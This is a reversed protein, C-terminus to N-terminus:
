SSPVTEPENKQTNIPKLQLRQYDDQQMLFSFPLGDFCAPVNGEKDPKGFRLTAQTGNKAQFALSFTSASAFAKPDVPGIWKVAKFESAISLQKTLYATDVTLSPDSCTWAGGEQRTVSLTGTGHTWVVGTVEAPRVLAPQLSFWKFDPKNATIKQYFDGPVELLFPLRGTRVYVNAGNKQGIEVTHVAPAGAAGEPSETFVLKAAPSALGTRKLNSDTPPLFNVAEVKLLEDLFGNVAEPAGEVNSYAPLIWKGGASQFDLTKGGSEISFSAIKARNEFALLRRERTQELLNATVDATVAPITVVAPWDSTQAYVANKGQVPSGVKLTLTKGGALLIDLTSAPSNLGYAGLDSADDSVFELIQTGLLAALYSNVKATSAPTELPKLIKWAEGEKKVEVEQRETKSHLSIAESSLFSVLSHNRWTAVPQELQEAIRKEVLILADKGDQSQVAYYANDGAAAHGLALSQLGTATRIKVTLPPQKLGFSELAKAYGGVDEPSITNLRDSFELSSLLTEVTGPNAPYRVPAELMWKGDGGKSLLIAGAPNQIEIRNVEETNFVLVKKGSKEEESTGGTQLESFYIYGFLGLVVVALLLLNSTKM